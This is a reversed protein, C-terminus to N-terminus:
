AVTVLGTVPIPLKGRLQGATGCALSADAAMALAILGLREVDLSVGDIVVLDYNSRLGGLARRCRRTDLLEPRGPAGAVICTLPEVARGSAPGALVLSQLVERPGVDGRLYEHLGPARELGLRAALSPDGLDAEVLAARRGRAAALTALGVAVRSKAPGIALVMRVGKLADALRSYAALEDRRLVGPRAAPDPGAPVQALVRPRRRRRRM